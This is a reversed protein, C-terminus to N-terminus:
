RLKGSYHDRWAVGFLGAALGVFCVLFVVNMMIIAVIVKSKYLFEIEHRGPSLEVGKFTHFVKVLRADRGDVKVVWDKAWLDTYTLVGSKDVLVNLLISNANYRKVEVDLLGEEGATPIDNITTSRFPGLSVDSSNVQDVMGVSDKLMRQLLDPNKKFAIMDSSEGSTYNKSFFLLKNTMMEDYGPLSTFLLYNKSIPLSSAGFSGGRTRFSNDKLTVYSTYEDRGLTTNYVAPVEIKDIDLPREFRFHLSHDSRQRLALLEPTVNIAGAMPLQNILLTWVITSITAVSLLIGVLWKVPMYNTALLVILMSGIVMLLAANNHASADWNFVVVILSALIMFVCVAGLLKRSERRIVYDFGFGALIIIVFVLFHLLFSCNRILLFGPLKYILSPPLFDGALMTMLLGSLAICWVFKRWSALAVIVFPLALPGTYLRLQEWSASFIGTFLTVLLNPTPFILMRFVDSKWTLNYNDTVSIETIRSIPVIENFGFLILINPLSMVLLIGIVVFIHWVPISKVKYFRSLIDKHYFCVVPVSLLIIYSFGMVVEYSYVASNYALTFVILYRFQLNRLYMTTAYLMWPIAHLIQVFSIHYPAYFVSSSGIALIAAFAGAFHDHTWSLTLFYVGSIYFLIIVLIFIAFSFVIDEVGSLISITAIINSLPNALWLSHVLQESQGARVLPNWLAYEGRAIGSYQYSYAAFTCLTDGVFIRDTQGWKSVFFLSYCALAVVILGIPFLRFINRQKSIVKM